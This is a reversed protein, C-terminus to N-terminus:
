GSITPFVVPKHPSITNLLLQLISQNEKFSSTRKVYEDLVRVVRLTADQPFANYTVSPSPQGAIWIKFLKDFNFIYKDKLKTMYKISANRIAM